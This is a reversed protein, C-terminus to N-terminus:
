AWGRLHAVAAVYRELEVSAGRAKLWDRRPLLALEVLRLPVGAQLAHDVMAPLELIGRPRDLRVGDLHESWSVFFDEFKPPEANTDAEFPMSRLLQPPMVRLTDSFRQRRSDLQSDATLADDLAARAKVLRGEAIRISREINKVSREGKRIAPVSAAEAKELHADDAKLQRRLARLYAMTREDGAALAELSESRPSTATTM